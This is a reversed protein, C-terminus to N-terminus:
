KKYCLEMATNFWRIGMYLFCYMQSKQIDTVDKSKLPWEVAIYRDVNVSVLSFVSAINTVWGGLGAVRCICHCFELTWKYSFLQLLLTPLAVLIGHLLDACTLSIMFLKTIKRIKESKHLVILCFSNGLLVFLTFIGFLTNRLIHFGHPMGTSVDSLNFGQFVPVSSVASYITLNYPIISEASYITLNEM